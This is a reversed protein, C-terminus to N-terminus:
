PSYQGVRPGDQKLVLTLNLEYLFIYAIQLIYLIKIFSTHRIIPQILRVIDKLIFIQSKENEVLYCLRSHIHTHIVHTFTSLGLDFPFSWFSCDSCILWCLHPLICHQKSHVSRCQLLCTSHVALSPVVLYQIYLSTQPYPRSEQSPPSVLYNLSTASPLGCESRHAM